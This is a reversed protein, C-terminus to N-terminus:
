FNRSSGAQFYQGIGQASKYIPSGDPNTGPQQIGPSFFGSTGDPRKQSLNEMGQSFMTSGIQVAANLKAQAVDQKAQAKTLAESAGLRAATSLGEQATASQQRARGLVGLGVNNNYERATANAKSLQGTTAEAMDGAATPSEAMALSPKSLAQMTDAQARGRLTTKVADTQSEAARAKLLPAFKTKFREYESRGIQANVQEAESAAYDKKNPGKGM